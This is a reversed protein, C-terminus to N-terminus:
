QLQRRGAWNATGAHTAPKDVLGAPKGEATALAAPAGSPRPCPGREGRAAQYHDSRIAREPREPWGRSLRVSSNFTVNLTLEPSNFTVKLKM